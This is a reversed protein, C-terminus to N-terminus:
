FARSRSVSTFRPSRDIRSSSADPLPPWYKRTTGRTAALRRRRAATPRAFGGRPLSASGGLPPAGYATPMIEDPHPAAQYRVQSPTLPATPEFGAMGVLKRRATQLSVAVSAVRGTRERRRISGRPKATLTAHGSRKPMASVIKPMNRAVAIAILRQCHSRDSTSFLPVERGLVTVM